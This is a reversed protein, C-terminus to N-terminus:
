GRNGSWGSWASQISKQLSGRQDMALAAIIGQENAIANIGKFKGATMRVAAQTIKNEM